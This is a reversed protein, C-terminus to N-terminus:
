NENAILAHITKIYDPFKSTIIAHNEAVDKQESLAELVSELAISQESLEKFDFAIATGATQHVYTYIENIEDISANDQEFSSLFREYHSILSAQRKLFKKRVRAMAEEVKDM